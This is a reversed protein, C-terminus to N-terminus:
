PKLTIESEEIKLNKEDEYKKYVCDKSLALYWIVFLNIIPICILIKCGLGRSFRNVLAIHVLSIIVIYSFLLILYLLVCIWWFEDFEEIYSELFRGILSSLIYFFIVYCLCLVGYARNKAIKGMIYASYFPVFFKWGRENAKKFVLMYSILSFFIFIFIFAVTTLLIISHFDM